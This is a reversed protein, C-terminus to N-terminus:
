PAKWQVNFKDFLQQTTMKFKDRRERLEQLEKDNLFLEAGAADMQWYERFFRLTEPIHVEDLLGFTLRALNYYHYDERHGGYPTEDRFLTEFRASPLARVEFGMLWTRISIEKDELGWIGRLGADFGDLADYVRRPFIQCGGSAMMVPYSRQSPIAKPWREHWSTENKLATGQYWNDRNGAPLIRPTYMAGDGHVAMERAANEFFFPDVRSHADAFMVVGADPWMEMAQEYGWRKRHCCGLRGPATRVEVRSDSRFEWACEEALYDESVDDAVLVHLDGSWEHVNDLLSRVTAALEEGENHTPVVTVWRHRWPTNSM